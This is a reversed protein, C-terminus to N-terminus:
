STDLTDEIPFHVFLSLTADGKYKYSWLPHRQYAKQGQWNVQEM